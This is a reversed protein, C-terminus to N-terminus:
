TRATNEGFPADCLRLASSLIADFVPQVHTPSQNIVRMIEATAAQQELAGTLTRRGEASERVADDARRTSIALQRQLTRVQRELRAVRALAEAKTRPLAPPQRRKSM